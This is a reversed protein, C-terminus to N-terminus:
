FYIESNIKATSVGRSILIDRTEVVMEASGCLYYNKNPSLADWEKLFKTVRGVYLCGPMCRSCCRIYREGLTSHLYESFYFFEPYSAGHIVTAHNVKNSLLMSMFPAIGTGTAVFVANDKVATFTGFPKSVLLTDGTKLNSLMPTLAGEAKESYLITILDDNEASAISYLRPEIEASIGLAIVQGAIFKHNRHLKLLHSGPAIRENSIVRQKSHEIDSWSKM